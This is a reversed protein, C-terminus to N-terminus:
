QFYMARTRKRTCREGTMGTPGAGCHCEDLEGTDQPRSHLCVCWWAAPGSAGMPDVIISMSFLACCSSLGGQIDGCAIHPPHTRMAGCFSCSSCVQNHVALAGCTRARHIAKRRPEALATPSVTALVRARKLRIALTGVSPTGSFNDELVMQFAIPRGPHLQAIRM